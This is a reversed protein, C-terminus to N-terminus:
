DRQKQKTISEYLKEERPNPEYATIIVPGTETPDDAFVIKLRRGTDTESIFWYRPVAGINQPRVESALPGTRNLFAEEVEHVAVRHKAKLKQLIMPYIVLSM